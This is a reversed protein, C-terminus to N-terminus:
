GLNTNLIDQIEKFLKTYLDCQSSTTDKIEFNSEPCIEKDVCDECCLDDECFCDDDEEWLKQRYVDICHEAILRINPHAQAYCDLKKLEKVDDVFLGGVLIEYECRCWEEYRIADDLKQVFCEFDVIDDFYAECLKLTRNYVYTNNFINYSVIRKKNCDYNLVYFEFNPKEM